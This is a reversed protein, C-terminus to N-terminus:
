DFPRTVIVWGFWFLVGFFIAVVVSVVALGTISRTPLGYRRGAIWSITPAIACSFVLEGIPENSRNSFVIVWFVLAAVLPALLLGWAQARRLDRRTTDGSASM